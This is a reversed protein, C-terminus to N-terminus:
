PYSNELHVIKKIGYFVNNEQLPEQDNKNKFLPVSNEVIDVCKRM